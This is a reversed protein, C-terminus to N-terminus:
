AVKRRTEKGRLMKVEAMLQVITADRRDVVAQMHRADLEALEARKLAVELRQFTEALLDNKVHPVHNRSVIHTM